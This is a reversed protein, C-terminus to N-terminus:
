GLNRLVAVKLIIITYSKSVLFTYFRSVINTSVTKFYNVLIDQPLRFGPNLLFIMRTLNSNINHKM